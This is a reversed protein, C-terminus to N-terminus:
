VSTTVAIYTQGLYSMTEGTNWLEDKVDVQAWETPDEEMEPKSVLQLLLTKLLCKGVENDESTQRHHNQSGSLWTHPINSM